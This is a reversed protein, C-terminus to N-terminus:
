SLEMIRAPGWICGSNAREALKDLNTSIVPLGFGLGLVQRELARALTPGDRENM